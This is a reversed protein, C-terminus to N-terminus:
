FALFPRVVNNYDDGKSSYNLLCDASNWDLTLNDYDDYQSSLAWFEYEGMAGGAASLYSRFTSVTSYTGFSTGIDYVTQGTVAKIVAAAQGASPLFWLSTADPHSQSWDRIVRVAEYGSYTAYRLLANTNTLGSVDANAKAMTDDLPIDSLYDGNEGWLPCEVATNSVVLGHPYGECLPDDASQAVYVVTGLRTKSSDIDTPRSTTGDAYYIDGVKM